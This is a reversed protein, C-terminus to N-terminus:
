WSFVPHHGVESGQGFADLHECAPHPPKKNFGGPQSTPKKKSPPLILWGKKFHDTDSLPDISMQAKKEHGIPDPLPRQAISVDVGM